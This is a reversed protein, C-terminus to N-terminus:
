DQKIFKKRNLSGESDLLELFYVGSPFSVTPLLIDKSSIAEQMMLQGAYNYVRLQAPLNNSRIVTLQSTTPNPFIVLDNVDNTLIPNEIGVPMADRISVADIAMDSRFSAGTIGRFTIKVIGKYPTLDITENFWQNGFDGVKAPIIDQILFGNISLDIHLEGMNVGYMHYFFSLEPQNLNSIDYCKSILQAELNFNNTAEIYM